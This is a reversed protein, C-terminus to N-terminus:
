RHTATAQNPSLKRQNRPLRQFGPPYKAFRIPGTVRDLGWVQREECMFGWSAEPYWTREEKLRGTWQGELKLKAIVYNFCLDGQEHNRSLCDYRHNKSCKGHALGQLWQETCMKENLGWWGNWPSRANIDKHYLYSVSACIITIVQM